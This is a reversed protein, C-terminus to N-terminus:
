PNYKSEKLIVQADTNVAEQLSVGKRKAYKEVIQWGIWCGVRGPALQSIPATYAADNIFRTIVMNDTSFLYNQKVISKWIEKENEKCWASQTTTYGILDDRDKQPLLVSLAYLIKGENIMASLLTPM